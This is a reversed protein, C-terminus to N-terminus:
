KQGLFEPLPALSFYTNVLPLAAWNKKEQFLNSFKLCYPVDIAYDVINLCWEINLLEINRYAHHM